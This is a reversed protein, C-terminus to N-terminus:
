PAFSGFSSEGYPTFEERDVMAGAADVVVNSSGLHDALTFQVAPGRDDPHAPGIRVLAVREAGDRSTSFTTRRDSAAQRWRHHEFVGDVYHTVEVEGGQKRVLKKVRMGPPTTSTTRM